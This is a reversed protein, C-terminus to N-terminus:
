KELSTFRYHLKILRSVVWGMCHQSELQHRSLNGATPHDSFIEFNVSIKRSGFCYLEM